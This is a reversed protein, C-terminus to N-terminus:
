PAETPRNAPMDVARRRLRRERRWYVTASYLFSTALFYGIARTLGWALSESTGPFLGFHERTAALIAAPLQLFLYATESEANTHFDELTGLLLSLLFTLLWLMLGGVASSYVVRLALRWCREFAHPQRLRPEDKTPLVRRVFWETFEPNGWYGTHAKFPLVAWALDHNIPARMGLVNSYHDLAAGFPDVVDSFNYWQFGKASQADTSREQQPVVAGAATADETSQMTPRPEGTLDDARFAFNPQATPLRRWPFFFFLKDLPSGLSVFTEIKSYDIGCQEQAVRQRLFDRFASSTKSIQVDHRTLGDFAVASGLSHGVVHVIDNELLAKVLVEDFRARIVDRKEQNHFFRRDSVYLKVDGAYEHIVRSWRSSPSRLRSVWPLLLFIGEGVHFVFGAVLASLVKFFVRIFSLSPHDRYHGHFYNFLPNWTASALWATFRLRELWTYQLDTDAWYAEYFNLQLPSQSRGDPLLVHVPRFLSVWSRSSDRQPELATDSTESTRTYPRNIELTDVVLRPNGAHRRLETFFASSVEKLYDYRSQNGMGHVVLVAIQHHPAM